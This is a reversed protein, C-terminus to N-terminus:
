RLHLHLRRREGDSVVYYWVNGIMQGQGRVSATQQRTLAYAHARRLAVVQSPSFNTRLDGKLADLVQTLREPPRAALSNMMQMFVEQQRRQRGFDGDPDDKRMRTYALAQEGNLRTPQPTFTHGDLSFALSPRVTVGGILDVARVFGGMSIEVFKDMPLGLFREVAQTQLTPGGRAYASNIKGVGHEPIVARTDRPVSLFTLWRRVPDFTLVLLVDARGSGLTRQDTGILLVRINATTQVRASFDLPAPSAPGGVPAPSPAPGALPAPLPAAPPEPSPRYRGLSTPRTVEPAPLSHFTPDDLVGPQPPLGDGDLELYAAQGLQQAARHQRYAAAALLLATLLAFCLGLLVHRRRNPQAPKM